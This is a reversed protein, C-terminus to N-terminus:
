GGYLIQKIGNIIKFIEKTSNNMFYLGENEPAELLEPTEEKDEIVTLSSNPDNWQIWLEAAGKTKEKDKMNGTFFTNKIEIISMDKKAADKMDYDLQKQAKFLELAKMTDNFTKEGTLYMQIAGTTAADKYKSSKGEVKSEDTLFRGTASKVDAGPELLRGAYSMAMRSADDVIGSGYMEKLMAKNEKMEALKEEKTKKKNLQGLIQAELSDRDAELKERKEKALKAKLFAEAEAKSKGAMAMVIEPDDGFMASAEQPGIGSPTEPEDAWPWYEDWLDKLEDKKSVGYAGAGAVGYPSWKALKYSGKIPAGVIKTSGGILPDQFPNWKSQWLKQGKGGPRIFHKGAQWARPAYKMGLSGIGGLIAVLPNWHQERGEADKFEDPHQGVLLPQVQGGKAYGLGSAIGTGRSDVRGGRFMPRRLIRSM